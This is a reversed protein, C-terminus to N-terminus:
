RLICGRHPIVHFGKAPDCREPPPFKIATRLEEALDALTAWWGAVPVGSTLTFRHLGRAHQPVVAAWVRKGRNSAQRLTAGPWRQRVQEALKDHKAGNTM